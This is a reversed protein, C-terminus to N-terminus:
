SRGGSEAQMRMWAETAAQLADWASGLPPSYSRDLDSVGDVTMGNHIATAYIDVRKSIEAGHHGVL